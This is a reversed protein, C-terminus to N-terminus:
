LIAQQVCEKASYSDKQEFLTLSVDYTKIVFLYVRVCM